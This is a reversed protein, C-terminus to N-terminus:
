RTLSAWPVVMGGFKQFLYLKSPNIPDYRVQELCKYNEIAFTLPSFVDNGQAHRWCISTNMIKLLFEFHHCYIMTEDHLLSWMICFITAYPYRLLNSRLPLCGQEMDRVKKITTSNNHFTPGQEWICILWILRHDCVQVLLFADYMLKTIGSCGVPLSCSM